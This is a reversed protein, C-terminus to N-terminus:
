NDTDGDVIVTDPHDSQPREYPDPETSAPELQAVSVVPYIRLNPPLDLEYTLRGVWRIVKFPGVRQQGLKRNPKGAITFDYTPPTVQGSSYLNIPATMDYKQRQTRLPSPRWRKKAFSVGKDNTTTFTLM